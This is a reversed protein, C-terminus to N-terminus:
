AFIASSIPPQPTAPRCGGGLRRQAQPAGGESATLLGDDLKTPQKPLTLALSPEAVGFDKSRVGLVACYTASGEAPGNIRM